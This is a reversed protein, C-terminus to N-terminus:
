ETMGPWINGKTSLDNFVLDANVWNIRDTNLAELM